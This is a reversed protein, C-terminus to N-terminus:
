QNTLAPLGEIPEMDIAECPCDAKHKEEEEDMETNELFSDSRAFIVETAARKERFADSTSSLDQSVFYRAIENTAYISEFNITSFYPHTKITVSSPRKEPDM